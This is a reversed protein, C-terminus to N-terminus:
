ASELFPTFPLENKSMVEQFTAYAHIPKLLDTILRRVWVVLIPPCICLHLLGVFLPWLWHFWSFWDPLRPLQSFNDIIHHIDDLQNQITQSFDSLNFSCMGPFQECGIHEKLLLYDITAHNQLVAM